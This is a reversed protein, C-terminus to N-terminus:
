PTGNQDDNDDYPSRPAHELALLFAIIVVAVAVGILVQTM